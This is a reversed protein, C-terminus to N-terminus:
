KSETEILSDNNQKSQELKEKYMKNVAEIFLKTNRNKLDKTRQKYEKVKQKHKRRHKSIAM